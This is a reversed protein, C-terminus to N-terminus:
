ASWQCWPQIKLRETVASCRRRFFPVRALFCLRRPTRRSQEATRKRRVERRGLDVTICHLMRGGHELTLRSVMVWVTHKGALCPYFVTAHGTPLAALKEGSRTEM